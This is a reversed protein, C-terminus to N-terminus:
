RAVTAKCSWCTKAPSPTPGPFWLAIGQDLTSGDVDRFPLYDAYRPKPLKGLIEQAIQSAARGSVRLIGVGGRGPPTAQAVITDSTSM